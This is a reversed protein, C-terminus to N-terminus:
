KFDKVGLAILQTEIRAILTDATLRMDIDDLYCIRFQGAMKFQSCLSRVYDPGINKRQDVLARYKELLGNAETIEDPTM